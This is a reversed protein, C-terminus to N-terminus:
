RSFDRRGFSAVAHCRKRRVRHDRINCCAHPQRAAYVTNIVLYHFRHGVGAAICSQTIDFSKCGDRKIKETQEGGRVGLDCDDIVDMQLVRFHDRRVRTVVCHFSCEVMLLIDAM